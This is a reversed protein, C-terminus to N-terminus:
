LTLIKPYDLRIYKQIVCVTCFGGRMTLRAASNAPLRTPKHFHGGFKSFIKVTSCTAAYLSDADVCAPVATLLDLVCGDAEIMCRAGGIGRWFTHYLPLAEKAEEGRRTRLSYVCTDDDDDGLEMDCGGESWGYGVAQLLRVVRQWGLEEKEEDLGDAGVWECRWTIRM